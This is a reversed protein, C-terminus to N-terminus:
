ESSVLPRKAGRRQDSALNRALLDWLDASKMPLRLTGLPISPSIGLATTAPQSTSEQEQFEAPPINRATAKNTRLGLPDLGTFAQSVAATQSSRAQNELLVLQTQKETGAVSPNGVAARLELNQEPRPGTVIVKDILATNDGGRRNTGVISITHPGAKNVKFADSTFLVYSGDDNAKPTFRGIVTNDLRVELTQVNIKGNDLKREAVLFSVAYAQGPVLTVSQSISGLNQIFGVQAGVPAANNKVYISRNAAIGAIGTFTWFINPGKPNVTFFPSSTQAPTAFSPNGIDVKPIKMQAADITVPISTNGTSIARQSLIITPNNKDLVGNPFFILTTGPVIYESNSVFAGVQGPGPTLIKNLTRLVDPDNQTPKLTIYSFGKYQPAVTDSDWVGITAM